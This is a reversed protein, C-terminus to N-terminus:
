SLISNGVKEGGFSFAEKRKGREENRGRGM